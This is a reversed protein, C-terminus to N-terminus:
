VTVGHGAIAEHVQSTEHLSPEIVEVVPLVKWEIPSTELPISEAIDECPDQFKVHPTNNSILSTCGLVECEVCLSFLPQKVLAVM